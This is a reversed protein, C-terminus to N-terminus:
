TGVPDIILEQELERIAARDAHLQEPRDHALIIYGMGMSAFLDTSAEVVDGSSVVHVPSHYSPLSRAKDYIEANRVVGSSGAMLFVAMVPRKMTYGAPLSDGRGACIDVVRTIQSSGTAIETVAPNGAGALRCNIEILRPGNDTIMIETHAGWWRLGVADLAALGYDVLERLEEAEYPMWEVSEYVALGDGYRVRSYRSMDTVSHRGDHSVTDFVYETGVM